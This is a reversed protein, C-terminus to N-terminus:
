SNLALSLVEKIESSRKRPKREYKTTSEDKVATAQYLIGLCSLCAADAREPHSAITQTAQSPVASGAVHFVGCLWVIRHQWNKHGILRMVLLSCRCTPVSQHRLFSAVKALNKCDLPEWPTLDLIAEARTRRLGLHRGSGVIAGSFDTASSRLIHIEDTAEQGLDSAFAKRSIAMSRM